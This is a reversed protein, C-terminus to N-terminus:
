KQNLVDRIKHLISYEKPINNNWPIILLSFIKRLLSSLKNPLYYLIKQIINKKNVKKIFNSSLENILEEGESKSLEMFSVLSKQFGDYGRPIKTKNLKLSGKPLKYIRPTISDRIYYLEDFVKLKSQAIAILSIILEKFDIPGTSLKTMEYYAKKLNETRHIAYHTPTYESFHKRVRMSPKNYEITSACYMNRWLLKKKTNKFALTRGQAIGYDQHQELYQIGTILGPIHIFDDDACFMCYPTKVTNVIDAFKKYPDQKSSKDLYIINLNKYKKVTAKNQNKVSSPSSDGIIIKFSCEIKNFYKLLREIHHPRNYTPVIITALDYTAQLKDINM